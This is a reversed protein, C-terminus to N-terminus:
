KSCTLYAQVHCRACPALAQSRIIVTSEVHSISSLYSKVRCPILFEYRPMRRRPATLRTLSSASCLASVAQPQAHPPSTTPIQVTRSGMSASLRSAVLEQFVYTPTTMLPGRVCRHITMQPKGRSFHLERELFYQMRAAQRSCVPASAVM